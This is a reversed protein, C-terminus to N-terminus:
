VEQATQTLNQEAWVDTEPSWWLRMVDGQASSGLISMSFGGGLATVGSVPGITRTADPLEERFNEINWLNNNVGPVWWYVSITGDSERGAINMAGWPTVWSCMSSPELLPGAADDTLNNTLWRNDNQGAVWWTVSLKGTQDTGGINIANWATLWVTLGGTLAPAGYELSLNNTTWKGATDLSQHWWIAQIQGNSDLGVVNLANWSTVFSTISGVFAPVTLGQARLDDALNVGTWSHDEGVGDGTQVYRILDGTAAVGAVTVLGDTSTFTTLNGTIAPLGPVEMSLNRFTWTAGATNTFLGLGQETMAAAYNRGDKSDVWTVIEGVIAPSSTKAQLDSKTWTTAGAQQQYIIPLDLASGATVNLNGDAGASAGLLPFGAQVEFSQFDSSTIRTSSNGLSDIAVAYYDIRGFYGYPDLLHPQGVAMGSTDLIYTWGDGATTDEGVKDTGSGGKTTVLRYFEVRTIGAADEGPLVNNATFTVSQGKRAHLASMTVSAITPPTRIITIDGISPDSSLGDNDVAVALFAAPGLPLTPSLDYDLTYGYGSGHQEDDSGILEGPDAIHDGDQDFYFDVRAVTGDSDLVANAILRVHGGRIINTSDDAARATLALITPSASFEYAGIDIATGRVRAFGTGRQDTTLNSPNLGTNIAPSDAALAMTQTPGGNDALAGLKPDVGVLNGNVGNTLGGASAADGILNNTSGAALTGTVDSAGSTLSLTNGAIITSKITATGSSVRIGGGDFAGSNNAITSNSITITGIGSIGGGGGGMVSGATNNSVTSNTMTLTGTSSIGGGGQGASNGSITSNSISLTGSSSIGGGGSAITMATNGSITSNLINLTAGDTNYIGGGSSGAFSSNSVANNAIISNSVTLTAANYIGGGVGADSSIHFGRTVTLGSLSSTGSNFLFVRSAGNGSVTLLSAGPGTITVDGDVYLQTGGLTITGGNLGSAFTITDNGPNPAAAAIAERLSLDGASFIGDNEDVLTDVVLNLTQRQYAGIDVAAGRAFLGGRQDTTLGSPNIGAGIAPSDAALAMTQTPGGNNALEGLNPDIGVLNGNQGNILGGATASDSVLNNTSTAPNLLGEAADDPTGPSTNYNNAIISSVISWAGWLAHVGGGVGTDNGDADATNGAITSNTVSVSTAITTFCGIGGGWSGASNGTIASNSVAVNSNLSFIGGGDNSASNGAILSDAIQLTSGGLVGIGGGAAACFNSTIACRSIIVSAGLDMLLAGGYNATAHGGTLTLGSIVVEPASAGNLVSFIRSVGSGSISLRDAGPGDIVLNENVFLEGSTLAITGSVSPDFEIVDAGAAGNADAIAQRFSGAGDDNLNTVSFTALLKRAELAEFGANVSGPRRADHGTPRKVHGARGLLRSIDFRM